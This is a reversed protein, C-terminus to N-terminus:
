IYSTPSQSPTGGQQNVGCILTVDAWLSYDCGSPIGSDKGREIRIVVQDGEVIVQDSLAYHQLCYKYDNCIGNNSGCSTVFQGNYYVNLFKIGQGGDDFDTDQFYISIGPSNCNNGIVNFKAYYTINNSTSNINSRINISRSRVKVTSPIINIPKTYGNIEPYISTSFIFAQKEFGLM